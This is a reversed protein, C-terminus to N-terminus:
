MMLEITKREVLIAIGCLIEKDMLKLVLINARVTFFVKIDWKTVREMIKHAVVEKLVRINLFVGDSTQIIKHAHDHGSFGYNKTWLVTGSGTIKAVFFDHLGFNNPVDGDSSETYGSIIFNGDNTAIISTGYDNKSGGITRSWENNGLNDIKIIWIDIEDNEKVIDGDSSNTQGVVIMGGDNTKVVGGIKEDLSGGFTKSLVLSLESSSNLSNEQESNSCSFFIFIITFVLIRM